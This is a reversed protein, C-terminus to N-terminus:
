NLGLSARLARVVDVINVKSDRNLDFRCWEDLSSPSPDLLIAIRLLSVLDTVDVADDLNADGGRCIYFSGTEDCSNISQGGNDTIAVNSFMLSSASGQTASSNVDFLIDLVEVDTGSSIPAQTPSSMSVSLKGPTSSDTNLTWGQTSSALSASGVSLLSSDFHLNFAIGAVNDSRDVQVAVKEGTFGIGGYPSGQVSVTTICNSALIVDIQNNNAPTHGFNELIIDLSGREGTTNNVFDIHLTEGATWATPFNGINIQYFGSGYGAGPSSDTQVESVRGVIYATFTIDGDAPVSLDSNFVQGVENQPTGALADGIRFCLLSMVFVIFLYKGSRKM